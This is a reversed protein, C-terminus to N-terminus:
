PLPATRSAALSSPPSGCTAPCRRRSSPSAADDVFIGAPRHHRQSGQGRGGGLRDREPRHPVAGARGRAHLREAESEASVADASLSRQQSTLRALQVVNYATALGVLAALVGILARVARVNYFPRTSLNTRLMVRGPGEQRTRLLMGVLPALAAWTEPTVSIRDPLLAMTTPDIPEVLTGSASRSGAARSKWTPAPAAPGGVFCAPFARVRWAIRTTCRRRTCSMPSAARRRRGAPEPLLDRRRRAHHRDVHLGPAHARGALRGDARPRRLYLNVVSFTSSIWSGPTCGRSRASVGRVRARRRAAGAGRRVRAGGDAAASGATADRM